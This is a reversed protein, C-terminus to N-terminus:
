SSHLLLHPIGTQERNQTLLEGMIVPIDQKFKTLDWVYTYNSKWYPNLGHLNALQHIESTLTLESDIHQLCLALRHWKFFDKQHKFERLLNQIELQM